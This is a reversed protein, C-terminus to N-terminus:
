HKYVLIRGIIIIMATLIAGGLTFLLISILLNVILSAYGLLLVFGMQLHQLDSGINMTTYLGALFPLGTGAMIGAVISYLNSNSLNDFIETSESISEAEESYGTGDRYKSAGRIIGYWFTAALLSAYGTQKVVEVLSPSFSGISVGVFTILLLMPVILVVSVVPIKRLINEKIPFHDWLIKSIYPMGLTVTFASVKSFIEYVIHNPPYSATTTPVFLLLPFAALTFAIGVVSIRVAPTWDTPKFVAHHATDYLLLIQTCLVGLGLLSLLFTASWGYRIFGKWNGINLFLLSLLIPLSFTFGALFWKLRDFVKVVTIEYIIEWTSAGNLGRWRAYQKENVM